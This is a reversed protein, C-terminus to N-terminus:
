DRNKFYIQEEYMLKHIAYLIWETKQVGLSKTHRDISNWEYEKLALNINKRLTSGEALSPKFEEDTIPWREKKVFYHMDEADNKHGIYSEEAKNIFENELNEKIPRKRMKLYKEM